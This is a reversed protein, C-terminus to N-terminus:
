RAFGCVKWRGDEQLTRFKRAGLDWDRTEGAYTTVMAGQCAVVTFQGDAGDVRCSLNSIEAKMPAFSAAETRAEAERSRCALGVLQTEDGNIRTRLYNEVAASPSDDTGGCAALLCVLAFALLLRQM